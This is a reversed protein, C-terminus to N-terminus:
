PWRNEWSRRLKARSQIERGGRERTEHRSAGSHRATEPAGTRRGARVTMNRCGGNATVGRHETARSRVVVFVECGGCPVREPERVMLLAISM